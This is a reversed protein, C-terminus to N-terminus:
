PMARRMASERASAISSVRPWFRALGHERASIGAQHRRCAWLRHRGPAQAQRDPRLFRRLFGERRRRDSGCHRRDPRRRGHKRRARDHPVGAAPQRVLESSTDMLLSVFGLTWVTAPVDRWSAPPTASPTRGPDTNMSSAEGAMTCRARTPDVRVTPAVAAQFSNSRERARRSSTSITTAAGVGGREPLPLEQVPRAARDEPDQRDRHPSHRRRLAVDDPMWWKAIKGDMFKLIDERTAKQGQKLQVILLPREDWKPHYVGIVAAEAVAPHGVALNELDISSIWEGGSKIVDKSRDTIRMYGHQDITAVDGTDFFGDDDLINTDVQFLGQRGRPRRGQPPWFDQRGVATGQRCRRHDEDRRRVASLGPDAPHRAAGRRHTRRVAAEARRRTGIPSMETM